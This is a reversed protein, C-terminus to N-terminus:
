SSGITRIKYLHFPSKSGELVNHGSDNIMNVSSM